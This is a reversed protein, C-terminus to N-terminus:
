KYYENQEIGNGRRIEEIHVPWLIALPNLDIGVNEKLVEIAKGCRVLDFWRHGEYSLEFKREELILKKFYDTPYLERNLYDAEPIEFDPGGARARIKNVLAMAKKRDDDSDGLNAFAEARLLYIDALRMLVINRTDVTYSFGITFKTTKYLGSSAREHIIVARWDADDFSDAYKPNPRLYPFNSSLYSSLYQNDDGDGISFALEFISEKSQGKNFIEAYETAQVRAKFDKDNVSIAPSYLAALSYSGNNVIQETREIVKQYNHEWAYAHADIALVATKTMKTRVTSSSPILRSAEELDAHIQKFVNAVPERRKEDLDENTLYPEIVLPVDGWIRVMYFYAYARLAYAQGMLNDAVDQTIKQDALLEPTFKLLVNAQKVILYFNSWNAINMSYELRNSIVKDVNVNFANNYFVDARMEGYFLFNLQLAAQLREYGANLLANLHAEEKPFNEGTWSTTPELDLMSCSSTLIHVSLVIYLIIRKM